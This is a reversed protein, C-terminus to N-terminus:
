TWLSLTWGRQCAHGPLILPGFTQFQTGPGRSSNLSTVEHGLTLAVGLILPQRNSQLINKCASRSFSPVAGESELFFTSVRHIVTKLMAACNIKCTECLIIWGGFSKCFSLFSPQPLPSNQGLSDVIQRPRFSGRLLLWGFNSNSIYHTSM